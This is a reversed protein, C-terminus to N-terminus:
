TALARAVAALWSPVHSPLVDPPRAGNAAAGPGKFGGRPCVTDCLFGASTLAFPSRRLTLRWALLSLCGRIGDWLQM